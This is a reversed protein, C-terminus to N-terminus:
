QIKSLEVTNLLKAWSIQLVRNFYIYTYSSLSELGLVLCVLGLRVLVSMQRDEIKEIQRKFIVIWSSDLSKLPIRSICLSQCSNLGSRDIKFYILGSDASRKCHRQLGPRRPQLCLHRCPVLQWLHLRPLAPPLLPLRAKTFSMSFTLKLANWIWTFIRLCTRCNFIELNKSPLVKLESLHGLALLPTCTEEM